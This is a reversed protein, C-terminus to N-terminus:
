FKKQYVSLQKAISKQTAELKKSEHYIYNKEIDEFGKEM